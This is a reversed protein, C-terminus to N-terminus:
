IPIGGGHRVCVVCWVGPSGEKLGGGAEGLGDGTAERGGGAGAEVEAEAALLAAATSFTGGGGAAGGAISGKRRKAVGPVATEKLTGKLSANPMARPVGARAAGSM